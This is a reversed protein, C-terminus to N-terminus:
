PHTNSSSRGRPMRTRPSSRRRSISGRLRLPPWAPRNSSPTGLATRTTSTCAAPFRRSSEGLGYRAQAVAFQADQEDLHPFTFGSPRRYYLSRVQPLDATRSPTSLTGEVGNSTITATLSLAHPFDGSDFRVVPVGRDHLASIVVDATPDDLNTVVLVPGLDSM